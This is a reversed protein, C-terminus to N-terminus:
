ITSWSSRDKKKSHEPHVKDERKEAKKSKQNQLPRSRLRAPSWRSQTMASATASKVEKMAVQQQHNELHNTTQTMHHLGIEM